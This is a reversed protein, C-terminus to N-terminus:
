VDTPCLKTILDERRHPRLEQTQLDLTGNAVNFLWGNSNLEKVEIAIGPESRAMSLMSTIGRIGATYRAFRLIAEQTMRDCQEMELRRGSELDHRGNEQSLEEIRPGDDIVWQKGM